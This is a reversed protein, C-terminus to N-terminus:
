LEISAKFEVVFTRRINIDEVEFFGRQSTFGYKSLYPTSFRLVRTRGPYLLDLQQESDTPDLITAPRPDDAKGSRRVIRRGHSGAVALASSLLTQLLRGSLSLGGPM